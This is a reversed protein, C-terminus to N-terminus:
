RFSCAFFNRRFPFISAIKGNGGYFRMLRPELGEPFVIRFRPGDKELAPVFAEQRVADEDKRDLLKESGEEGTTRREVSELGNARGARV